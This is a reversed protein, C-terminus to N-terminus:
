VLATDKRALWVVHRAGKNGPRARVKHEQVDLGAAVLRRRFAPSAHASWVSLVGAPRLSRAAAALGADGYLWDNGARTLGEPGNDVDLLIAHWRASPPALLEAVDGEHIQVRADVLPHGALHSLPGRNWAVVAPVLEAVTVMAHAPLGGLASALTHGLGLGGILVRPAQQGALAACVLGAMARESGHARSNMLEGCGRLRVSFEQGRQWLQLQDDGGPVATAELLRWPKVRNEWDGPEPSDPHLWAVDADCGRGRTACAAGLDM